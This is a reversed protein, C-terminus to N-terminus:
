VTEKELKVDGTYLDDMMKYLDLHTVNEEHRDCWVQIGKETMGVSLKSYDMYSQTNDTKEKICKDCHIFRIIKSEHNLTKTM